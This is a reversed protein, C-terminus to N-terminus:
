DLIALFQHCPTLPVHHLRTFGCNFALHHWWGSSEVHVWDIIDVSLHWTVDDHRIVSQRLSLHLHACSYCQQSAVCTRRYSFELWTHWPAPWSLGVLVCLCHFQCVWHLRHCTGWFHQLCPLAKPCTLWIGLHLYSMTVDILTEWAEHHQRRGGGCHYHVLPCDALCSM